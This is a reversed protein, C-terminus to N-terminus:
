LKEKYLSIVKYLEKNDIVNPHDYIISNNFYIRTTPVVQLAWETNGTEEWVDSEMDGIDVFYLNNINKDKLYEKIRPVNKLCYPCWMAKFVALIPENNKTKLINKFEIIDVNEM